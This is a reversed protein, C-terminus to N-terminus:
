IRYSHVYALALTVIVFTLTLIIIWDRSLLEEDEVTKVITETFMEHRVLTEAIRKNLEDEEQEVRHSAM